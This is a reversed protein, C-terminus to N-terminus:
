QNEGEFDEEELDEAESDAGGGRLCSVRALSQMNFYGGHFGETDEEMEMNEYDWWEMAAIDDEDDEDDEDHWDGPAEAAGRMATLRHLFWQM